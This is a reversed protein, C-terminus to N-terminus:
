AYAYGIAPHSGKTDHIDHMDGHQRRTPDGDRPSGERSAARIRHGALGSLAVTRNVHGLLGAHALLPELQAAAAQVQAAASGPAFCAAETLTRQIDGLAFIADAPWRGDADHAHARQLEAIRRSMGPVRGLLERQRNSSDSQTRLQLCKLSPAAEAAPSTESPQMNRVLTLAAVCTILAAVCTILARVRM